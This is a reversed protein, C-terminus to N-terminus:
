VELKALSNGARTDKALLWFKGWGDGWYEGTQGFQGRQTGTCSGHYRECTLTTGVGERIRGDLYADWSGM